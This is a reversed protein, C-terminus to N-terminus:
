WSATANNITLNVTFPATKVMMCDFTLQHTHFTPFLNGSRTQGFVNFNTTIYEVDIYILVLPRGQTQISHRTPTEHVTNVAHCEQTAASQDFYSQKLFNGDRYSRLHKFAVDLGM